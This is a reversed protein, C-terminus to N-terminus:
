RLSEWPYNPLLDERKIKGETAQEIKLCNQINLGTRGNKWDLVSKYSVGIISALEKAGGVIAIAKQISEAAKQNPKM